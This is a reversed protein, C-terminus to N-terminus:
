FGLHHRGLSRCFMSVGEGGLGQSPAPLSPTLWLSFFTIASYSLWTPGSILIKAKPNGLPNQPSTPFWLRWCPHTFFFCNDFHHYRLVTYNRIWLVILLSGNLFSQAMLVRLPAQGPVSLFHEGRWGWGRPLPLSHLPSGCLFFHYCLLLAM